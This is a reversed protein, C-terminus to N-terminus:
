ISLKMESKLLFLLNALDANSKSVVSDFIERNIMVKLIDYIYEFPMGEAKLIKISQSIIKVLSNKYQELVDESCYREYAKFKRVEKMDSPLLGFGIAARYDREFRNASLLVNSFCSVVLLFYNLRLDHFQGKSILIEKPFSESEGGYFGEGDSHGLFVIQSGVPISRIEERAKEYCDPSSGVTIIIVEDDEVNKCEDVIPSLFGTTADRPFVAFM